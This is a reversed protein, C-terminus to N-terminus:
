LLSVRCLVSSLSRQLHGVVRFVVGFRELGDLNRHRRQLAVLLEELGTSKPVGGLFLEQEFLNEISVLMEIGIQQDILEGGPTSGVVDGAWGDISGELFEDVCTQEMAEFEVTSAHVFKVVSVGLVVVQVAGLTTLEDFKGAIFENSDPIFNGSGVAEADFVM